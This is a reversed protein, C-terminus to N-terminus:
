GWTALILGLILQVDVMVWRKKYPQGERDLPPCYDPDLSNNVGWCFSAYTLDRALLPFQIRVLVTEKTNSCM